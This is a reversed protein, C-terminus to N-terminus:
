FFAVVGELVPHYVVLFVYHKDFGNAFFGDRIDQVLTVSVIQVVFFYLLDPHIREEYSIRHFVDLVATDNRSLCALRLLLARVPVHWVDTTIQVHFGTVCESEQTFHIEPGIPSGSM